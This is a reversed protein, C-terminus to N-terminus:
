EDSSNNIQDNIDPANLLHIDNGWTTVLVRGDLNSQIICSVPGRFYKYTVGDKDKFFYDKVYKINVKKNKNYILKYLKIVGKGKNPVFGGILCYNTKTINKNDLNFFQINEYLSLQCFCYVEFNGTKKFKYNLNVVQDQNINYNVLLIGNNQNKTYKKCACLLLKYSKNKKSYEMLSLSNIASNVTYNFDIEKMNENINIKKNIDYINYFIIKSKKQINNSVFAFINNCILIGGNVPEEFIIVSHPNVIKSSCLNVFVKVGFSGFTIQYKRNNVITEFFQLFPFKEENNKTINLPGGSFNLKFFYICNVLSLVMEINNNNNIIEVSYFGNLENILSSNIKINNLFQDYFYLSSNLGGILYILYDGFKIGKIFDLTKVSDYKEKKNKNKNLNDEKKQQINKKNKISGETKQQIDETKKQINKKSTDSTSQTIGNNSNYNNATNIKNNNNNKTTDIKNNDNNDNHENLQKCETNKSENNMIINFEKLKVINKKIIKKQKLDKNYFDLM